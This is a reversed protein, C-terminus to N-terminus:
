LEKMLEKKIKSTFQKMIWKQEKKDLNEFDLPYDKMIDEHIDKMYYGLYRGFQTIESIVGFKSFLDATRNENVYGCVKDYLSQVDETINFKVREKNVKNKDDFDSNKKKIIFMSTKGPIGFYFNHIPRIVVGEMLNEKDYDEPTYLSNKMINFEIANNIGVIIDFSKVRSDMIDLETEKKIQSQLEDIEIYNFNKVTEDELHEYIAYWNWYRGEGYHVRKQVGQGYLEGVFQLTSKNKLCYTSVANLFDRMGDTQFADKYNYFSEDSAIIGNRKAFQWRCEPYFIVSFNAGDIKETVVFSERKFEEGYHNMFHDIFENQYHNEISTWKKFAM